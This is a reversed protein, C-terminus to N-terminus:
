RFCCPDLDNFVDGGAGHVVALCGGCVPRIDCSACAQSGNRYRVAQPGHYIDNLSASYINGIPSPFKRCAHVEGDSLLSVFNFAAGCGRGTCGGTLPRGEQYNLLNFLNDKFGMVPNDAAAKRYDALFSRYREPLVADLDAGRGVNSLRNFTFLDARDKLQGALPVVQEMNDRTLTLMVVRHVGLEGLVTLFRMTKRYHGKGRIADNHTELGELSVQFFVPKQV